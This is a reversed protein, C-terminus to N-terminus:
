RFFIIELFSFVEKARLLCLRVIARIVLKCQKVRIDCQGSSRQPCSANSPPTPSALNEESQPCCCGFHVYSTFTPLLISTPADDDVRTGTGACIRDLQLLTCLLTQKCVSVNSVCAPFHRDSAVTEREKEPDVPRLWPHWADSITSKFLQMVLTQAQLTGHSSRPSRSATCAKSLVLPIDVRVRISDSHADFLEHLISLRLLPLPVLYSTGSGNAAGWM